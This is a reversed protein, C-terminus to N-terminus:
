SDFKAIKAEKQEKIVQLTQNLITELQGKQVFGVIGKLTKEDILGAEERFLLNNKDYTWLSAMVITLKLCLKQISGISVQAQVQLANIARLLDAKSTKRSFHEFNNISGTKLLHQDKEQENM